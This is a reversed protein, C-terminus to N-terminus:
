GLWVSDEQRIDLSSSGILIKYEAPEVLWAKTTEDWFALDRESLSFSLTKSEGLKLEVKQFLKLEKSPRDMVSNVVRVYCQVVEKGIFKGKNSITTEFAIVSDAKTPPIIRLNNYKFETYSLGHGFPFLPEIEEKDYWRYGIYLGEEYNMQLDKGPYHPFAPTDELRKPFTTPLKGSPNAEGFLIDTLAMGYEQGSFWFQLIAKVESIWPMTVPSGTNMVVVTNPNVECVRKILEEQKGPLSMDSRDNGETEWDSSTGVVLVVADSNKSLSVARELLDEKDPPLVGIQVAPFRGLWKYEIELFYRKEKELYISSQRPASGYNFFADGPEQSTWNDIIEEGNIKLRASGISIVEFLHEGSIDPTFNSSFRVSLSPPEFKSAVEMGFGTLAWFKGGTMIESGLVKGGLDDGEFFEVLFGKQKTKPDVLKDKDIPPLYKYTHCGKGTLVKIKKGLYETIAEIPHIVYHAKVTASGGGIFQGKEANPGILAITKIDSKKFPLVGENKLLVTSEIAARKILLRDEELDQSIEKKEEPSDLRGTFDAVRLIRRVKDFVEEESVKGKKLAKLLNDGWTTSPGPMILDLGGNANGETDLAAGWDSVVFGPFSWEEKLINILLEKNSSCFVNNLQNYASMVSLAGGQKVGMEFPLLYMERLPRPSINSSVSHREFETDNGVFHKLCAVVRQSQVGRVFSVALRGTLIPDESYCEFHRGGLPHRHLNITPGLLIDADKSKAERGIAIGITEVLDLDWISGLAIGCPFCASSEGSSGNGRAGNPGDTLKLRPLSLRDVGTSHWADSGSIVSVAEEISLEKLLYDVRDM